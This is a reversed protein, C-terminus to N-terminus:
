SLVSKKSMQNGRMFKEAQTSRSEGTICYRVFAECNIANSNLKPTFSFKPTAGVRLRAELVAFPLPARATAGDGELLFLAPLARRPILETLDDPVSSELTQAITPTM